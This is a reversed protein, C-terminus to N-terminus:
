NKTLTFSLEGGGVPAETITTTDGEYGAPVKLTHIEYAGAPLTFQCVGNADSVFVQCTAEDCVQCMVGPVPDGNQDVYTVTYTGDGAPEEEEVTMSEDWLVAELSLDNLEGVRKAYRGAQELDAFILIDNMQTGNCHLIVASHLYASPNENPIELLYGDETAFETLPYVNKAFDVVYATEPDMTEDLTVAVRLVPDPCIPAVLGLENTEVLIIAADAKTENLLEMRTEEAVPYQIKNAMAAEAEDGSILRISDIWMGESGNNEDFDRNFSVSIQHNGDEEFRYAYTTWDKDMSSAFVNQKDVTVTMSSTHNGSMFKYDMVLVDGAKADVQTEVVAQSGASDVNSAAAVMRGDKQEVTMPWTFPNSANTFVLNGGEGNLAEKLQAPDAPQATPLEAIMTPMFVSETYDEATYIEFVHTFIAPDPMGGSEMLCITGFRDVVVSTPVYIANMREGMNVTDMGVPFTMGKEQVYAALIEDNDMPSISLAIIEVKDQYQEYAEQM